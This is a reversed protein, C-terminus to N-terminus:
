GATGPWAGLRAALGSTPWRREIAPKELSFYSIAASALGLATASVFLLPWPFTFLGAGSWSMVMSVWTQHWLYLGYSVVGVSVMVRTTLLARIPGAHPPGFVAPVVVFFGFAGYLAEKALGAALDGTGLPSLPLGLNGVAVYCAGALGWAAWPMLPHWLWFPRTGSVELWASAVALAMGLAFQGIYGPLWNPMTAALPSHITSVLVRYAVCVGILAVIGAVEVGLQARGTRVKRGLAAAYLPLFLYFSMETCLSWAQTIGTLIYHPFYIQAFGLYVLPAEWSHRVNDARMLYSIVIFAGWYAPIIRALRRKWFEVLGPSPRGTLHALAFRRYLLFGSIVFFVEVGADLRATYRGLTDHVTFGSVFATHVGVVMLAALARLGDFCAFRNASPTQATPTQATPTRRRQASRIEIAPRM